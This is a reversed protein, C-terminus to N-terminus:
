KLSENFKMLANQTKLGIKGDATISYGARILLRQIKLIEERTMGPNLTQPISDLSKPAASPTVPRAVPEPTPIPYKCLWPADKGFQSWNLATTDKCGWAIYGVVGVNNSAKHLHPTSLDIKWLENGHTGDNAVFYYVDDIVTDIPLKPNSDMDGPVTGPNIDYVMVTGAETGDSKWLERGHTADGAAFYVNGNIYRFGFIATSKSQGGPYIDKVMVTGAETGDSKWLQVGSEPTKDPTFYLVGNVATLSNIYSGEGPYIDKVMVTGDETGDSKWLEEGHVGDDASFYLNDNMVVFNNIGSGNIGPNVDKLMVTGDETGDSKWLEQGHTGDNATFYVLHDIAIFNNPFSSGSTDGTATQYIDRVMVTGKETGDSKWLEQGSIEDIASFYLVGDMNILQEPNGDGDGGFIDKVMVTGNETGDSKWLEHGHIGDTAVFYLEGNVVVFSKPDADGTPNIDKVMVTGEETGDSKWLEHGHIGDTATFYFETGIIGASNTRPDSSGDGTFIDKVMVTGAETGDSKWLEAGHVGDDQNFYITNDVKILGVANGKGEITYIDKVMEPDKSQLAFAKFSVVVLIFAIMLLSSLWFKKLFKM